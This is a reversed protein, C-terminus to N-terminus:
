PNMSSIAQRSAPRAHDCAQRRPKRSCARLAALGLNFRGVRRAFKDGVLLEVLPHYHARSRGAEWAAALREIREATLLDALAPLKRKLARGLAQENKGM